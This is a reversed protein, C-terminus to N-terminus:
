TEHEGNRTGIALSAAACAANAQFAKLASSAPFASSVGAAVTAGANLLKRQTESAELHRHRSATSSTQQTFILVMVLSIM